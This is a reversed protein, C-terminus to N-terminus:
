HFDRLSFFNFDLVQPFFYPATPNSSGGKEIEERGKPVLYHTIELMSHLPVYSVRENDVGIHPRIFKHSM